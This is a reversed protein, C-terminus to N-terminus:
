IRQLAAIPARPSVIEINGDEEISIQTEQSPEVQGNICITSFISFVNM